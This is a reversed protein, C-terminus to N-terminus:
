EKVGLHMQEAKEGAKTYLAKFYFQLRYFHLCLYLQQEQMVNYNLNLRARCMISTTQM